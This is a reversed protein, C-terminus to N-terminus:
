EEEVSMVALSLIDVGTGPKRGAGGRQWYDPGEGEEGPGPRLPKDTLM